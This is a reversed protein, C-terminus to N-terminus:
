ACKKYVHHLMFIICDDGWYLWETSGGGGLVAVGNAAEGGGLVEVGGRIGGSRQSGEGWVAASKDHLIYKYIIVGKVM